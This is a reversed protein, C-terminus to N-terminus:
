DIIVHTVKGDEDIECRWVGVQLIGSCTGTVGKTGDVPGSPGDDNSLPGDQGPCACLIDCDGKRTCPKGIQPGHCDLVIEGPAHPEGANTTQECCTSGYRVDDSASCTPVVTSTAPANSPGSATRCAGALLMACSMSLIRMRKTMNTM